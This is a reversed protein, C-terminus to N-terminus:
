YKNSFEKRVTHIRAKVTGIPINLKEAIEKYKFGKMYLEICETYKSDIKSMVDKIEDVLVISDANVSSPNDLSHLDCVSESVNRKRKSERFGNIFTNKTVVLLWSKLNTGEEFKHSNKLARLIVDQTLDQALYKDKTLKLSFRNILQYSNCIQETVTM